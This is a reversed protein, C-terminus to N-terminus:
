TPLREPRRRIPDCKIQLAQGLPSPHIYTGVRLTKRFPLSVMPFSSDTLFVHGTHPPHPM